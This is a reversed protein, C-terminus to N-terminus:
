LVFALAGLGAVAVGAFVGGRKVAASKSTQSAEANETATAEAGGNGKTDGSGGGSSALAPGDLGGAEGDEGSVGPCKLICDRMTQFAKVETLDEPYSDMACERACDYANCPLQDPSWFPSGKLSDEYKSYSGTANQLHFRNSYTAGQSTTLDAIAISYYSASPGVSAPISLNTLPSSLTTSNLLYCTPGNVGALAAALYVRYNDDNANRFTIDFPEGATINAPTVIGDLASVGLIFTALAAARATIPPM